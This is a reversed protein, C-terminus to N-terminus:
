NIIEYTYSLVGGFLSYYTIREFTSSDKIGNVFSAKTFVLSEEKDPLYVVLATNKYKMYTYEHPKYIQTTSHDVVGFSVFLLLVFFVIVGITSPVFILLSDTELGAVIGVIGLLLLLLFFLFVTIM